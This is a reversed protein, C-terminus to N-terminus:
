RASHIEEAIRAAQARIEPIATTEWRCGRLLPGLAWLRGTAGVRCADDAILGLGLPDYDGLGSEVLSELLPLKASRVNLDPGTCNVIWRVFIREGGKFDVEFGEDSADIRAIRGAGVDLRGEQLASAITAAAQEAIRHRHVDWFPRLRAIFRRRQEWSLSQWVMTLHPRLGDLVARWDEGAARLLRVITWLPDSGLEEPSIPKRAGLRHGKPLLGRRSRAFIRARHERANLSLFTDVMTLGTGVILVPDDPAIARLTETKWPNALYPPHDEVSRLVSPTASPLYGTALIVHDAVLREGSRMVIALRDEHEFSQGSDHLVVLEAESNEGERRLVDALYAGLDVRPAFMTRAEEPAIRREKILWRSFGDPEDPFAGLDGARVNLLHCRDTTGYAVGRGVAASPEVIVVRDGSGLRRLLM